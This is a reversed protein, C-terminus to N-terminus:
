LWIQSANKEKLLNNINKSITPLEDALLEYLQIQKKLKIYCGYYSKQGIYIEVESHKNQVDSFISYKWLTYDGLKQLNAFDFTEISKYFTLVHSDLIIQDDKFKSLTNIIYEKTVYDYGIDKLSNSFWKDLTSVIRM